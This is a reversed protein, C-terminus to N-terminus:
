WNSESGRKSNSTVEHRVFSSNKDPNAEIGRHNVMFGLFKGSEVGFVCKQPNLKMRYKRLINFMEDLHKIHDISEKSKVLMDDVYVEMTKGIQEKFMMNVLRQYTAGANLLGFPMGIYCYLGRDTIFSTDEQDPEYMPIQNYGSYADMFSLLAHGATADVLQDIRPLPFSDKPCAKKLDTFDVCVRWKGNPKKVLVPNALWKPYFSEKVLGVKLLSDVEDKLAEAREGSLARRKQRVGRRDPDINLHHCMVEPDIGVMDDHSWAFVDLNAKLFKTLKERLEPELQSGIQLVKAPDEKDVSIPITDEAPGVVRIVEPMRPDLDIEFNKVGSSEGEEHISIPEGLVCTQSAQTSSEIIPVLEKVKGKEKGDQAAHQDTEEDSVEEVIGEQYQGHQSISNPGAVMLVQPGYNQTKTYPVMTMVHNTSLTEKKGIEGPSDEEQLEEILIMNVTQKSFRIPRFSRQTEQASEEDFDLM